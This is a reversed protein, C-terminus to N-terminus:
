NAKGKQSRTEKAAVMLKTERASLRFQQEFNKVRNLKEHRCVLQWLFQQIYDRRVKIIFLIMLINQDISGVFPVEYLMGCNNVESLPLTLSRSVIRAM